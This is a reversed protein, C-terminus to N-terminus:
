TLYTTIQNICDNLSRCVVVKYGQKRLIEHFVEQEPSLVGDKRKLELFLGHHRIALLALASM